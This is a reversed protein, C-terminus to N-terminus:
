HPMLQWMKKIGTWEWRESFADHLRISLFSSYVTILSSIPFSTNRAMTTPAIAIIM